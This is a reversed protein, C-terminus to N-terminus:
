FRYSFKLVYRRDERPISVTGIEEGYTALQFQYNFMALEMGATWYKQNAGGRLFLADAYNIEFGTHLRKMIPETDSEDTLVDRVEITWSSRTVNSHIPFVAVAVDLSHGVTEPREETSSFMGQSLKYSTDGADRLVLALTPLLKIPAAFMLGVDSGLGMGESALNSVSLGTSNPDIDTRNIETRNTYRANAGLKVIGNFFRFNFGAVASWDNTYNYRYSSGTQDVEADVVHKAHLGIGFNPFILSPFIQGKLHMPRGPNEKLKELNFQPDLGKYFELGLVRELNMNGEIEPDIVTIFHDRLKGLAAPNLLLSTEDNVVAIAAGGMWMQRVGNYFEFREQAFIFSSHFLIILILIRM